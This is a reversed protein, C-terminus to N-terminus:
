QPVTSGGQPLLGPEGSLLLLTDQQTLPTPCLNPMIPPVSLRGEQFMELTEPISILAWIQCLDLCCLQPFQELLQSLSAHVARAKSPGSGQESKCISLFVNFTRRPSVHRYDWSTPICLNPPDCNLAM